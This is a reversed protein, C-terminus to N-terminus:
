QQEYAARFEHMQEATYIKELEQMQREILQHDAEPSEKDAKLSLGLMTPSTISSYLLMQKDVSLKQASRDITAKAAEAYDPKGMVQTSWDMLDLMRRAHEPSIQKHLLQEFVVFNYLNAFDKKDYAITFGIARTSDDQVELSFFARKMYMSSYPMWMSDEVAHYHQDVHKLAATDGWADLLEQALAKGAKTPREKCSSILLASIILLTITVIKKRM